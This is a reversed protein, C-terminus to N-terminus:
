VLHEVKVVLLVNDANHSAMGTPAVIRHVTLYDIEALSEGLHSAQHDRTTTRTSHFCGM